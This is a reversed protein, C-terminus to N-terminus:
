MPCPVELVAQTQDGPALGAWSVEEVEDTQAVDGRPAFWRRGVDCWDRRCVVPRGARGAVAGRGRGHRFLAARGLPASAANVAAFSGMVAVAHALHVQLALAFMSVGRDDLHEGVPFDDALFWAM